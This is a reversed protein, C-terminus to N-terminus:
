PLWAFEKKNSHTAIILIQEFALSYIPIEPSNSTM